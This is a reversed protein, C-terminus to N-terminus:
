PRLAVTSTIERLEGSQLKAVLQEDGDRVLLQDRSRETSLGLQVAAHELSRAGDVLGGALADAVARQLEYLLPWSPALQGSVLGYVADSTPFRCVYYADAFGFGTVLPAIHQPGLEGLAIFPTAVVSTGIRDDAERARRSIRTKDDPIRLFPNAWAWLWAQGDFSGLMEAAFVKGRLRLTGAHPDCHWQGAPGLTALVDDLRNQRLTAAVTALSRAAHLAALDDIPVAPDLEV